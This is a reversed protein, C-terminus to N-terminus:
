RCHRTAAEAASPPAKLRVPTGAVKGIHCRSGGGGKREGGGGGLEVTPAALRRSAPLPDMEVVRAGREHRLGHELCERPKELALRRDAAIFRGVFRLRAHALRVFQQPAQHPGRGPVYGDDLVRGHGEALCHRREVETWTVADNRRAGVVGRVLQRIQRESAARADLRHTRVLEGLAPYIGRAHAPERAM